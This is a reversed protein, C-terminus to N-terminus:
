FRNIYLIDHRRFSHFFNKFLETISQTGTFVNGNEDVLEGTPSFLAALAAADAANFAKATADAEALIAKDLATPADAVAQALTADSIFLGASITCAAALHRVTRRVAALIM